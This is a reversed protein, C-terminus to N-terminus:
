PTALRRYNAAIKRVYEITERYRWRPVQPGVTEVSTWQSDDLSMGRATATARAITGEGANYSGFMFPPRNVDAVKPEWLRWLYRDHMIGAAINWEPSDISEFEPRKSQIEQFTSPMLQMVGRAGVSSHALSDLDSEAMGQAKFYRWDFGAGFYRKTYKRFIADFRSASRTAARAQAARDLADGFSARASPDPSAQAAVLLASLLPVLVRQRM